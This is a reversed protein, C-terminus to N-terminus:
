PQLHHPLRVLDGRMAGPRWWRSEEEHMVALATDDPILPYNKGAPWARLRRVMEGLWQESVGWQRSELFDALHAPTPVRPHEWVWEFVRAYIEIVPDSVATEVFRGPRRAVRLRHGPTKRSDRAAYVPAGAM